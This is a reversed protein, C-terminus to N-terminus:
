GPGLDLQEYIEYPSESEREELQEYLADIGRRLIESVTLDTRDQLERLRQEAEDDLRVSRTSM